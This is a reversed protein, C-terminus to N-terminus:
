KIITITKGIQEEQSQLLLFYQGSPLHDDAFSLHHIGPSQTGVDNRWVQRGLIDYITLRVDQITNLEYFINFAANTPNPWIKLNVNKYIIDIKPDVVGEWEVVHEYMTYTQFYDTTHYIRMTGGPVMEPHLAVFYLEGPQISSSMGCYWSSINFDLILSVSDGYDFVRWLRQSDHHFIFIEGPISGNYIFSQRDVGWNDSIFEPFSFAEANNNSYYLIGYAWVYVENADVGLAISRISLTDPFNSCSCPMYNYGFDQSVELRYDLDSRRRFIKGPVVGSAHTSTAYCVQEWTTGGNTSLYQVPPFGCFRYLTSDAADALLAGFSEAGPTESSDLLEINEGSDSSYYFGNFAPLTPHLGVFYIEGPYIGCIVGGSEGFVNISSIILSILIMKLTLYFGARQQKARFRSTFLSMPFFLSTSFDM